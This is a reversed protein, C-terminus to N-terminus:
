WRCLARTREGPPRLLPTRLCRCEARCYTRMCAAKTAGRRMRVRSPRHLRETSFCCM